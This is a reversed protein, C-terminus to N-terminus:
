VCLLACAGPFEHHPPCRAPSLSRAGSAPRPSESGPGRPDERSGHESRAAGPGEASAAPPAKARSIRGSPGPPKPNAKAESSSHLGFRRESQRAPRAAGSASHAGGRGPPGASHRAGEIADPSPVVCLSLAPSPPLPPTVGLFSRRGGPRLRSAGPGRGANRPGGCGGECAGRKRRSEHSQRRPHRACPGRNGDRAPRFPQWPGQM